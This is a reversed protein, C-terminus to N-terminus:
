RSAALEKQMAKLQQRGDEVRQDLEDINQQMTQLRADLSGQNMAGLSTLATLTKSQGMVVSELKVVDVDAVQKSLQAVTSALNELQSEVRGLRDSLERADSSATQKGRQQTQSPSQVPSAVDLDCPADGYLSFFVRIMFQTSIPLREVSSGNSYGIEELDLVRNIRGQKLRAELSGLLQPSLGPVQSLWSLDDVTINTPRNFIHFREVWGCVWQPNLPVNPQDNGVAVVMGSLLFIAIFFGKRWM